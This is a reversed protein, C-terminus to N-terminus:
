KSTTISVFLLAITNLISKLIKLFNDIAESLCAITGLMNFFESQNKHIFFHLKVINHIILKVDSLNNDCVTQNIRIRYFLFM